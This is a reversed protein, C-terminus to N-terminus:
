KGWDETVMEGHDTLSCLQVMCMRLKPGVIVCKFHEKKKKSTVNKRRSIDPLKLKDYSKNRSWKLDEKM